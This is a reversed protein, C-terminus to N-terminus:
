ITLSILLKTHTEAAAGVGVGAESVSTKDESRGELDRRTERPDGEGAVVLSPFELLHQELKM